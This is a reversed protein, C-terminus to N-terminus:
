NGWSAAPSSLWASLMTVRVPFAYGTLNFAAPSKVFAGYKGLDVYPAVNAPVQSFASRNNRVFIQLPNVALPTKPRLRVAEPILDRLASRVLFKDLTWPVPPLSLLFRMLRLDFYPHAYEVCVRTAGPDCDEFCNQWHPALLTRVAEPRNPHEGAPASKDNWRQRLGLRFEFDPNLWAPYNVRWPDPVLSRRQLMTRVGMPPLGRQSIAYRAGDQLFRGLRRKRLLRRFHSNSPYLGVDGGEGTLVLRARSSALRRFDSDLAPLINEDPQSSQVKLFETQKSILYRDGPLYDIPIGQSAAFMGSYHREEDPIVNDYVLTVGRLNNVGARRAFTAVSTSDLGGSLSIAARDGRLRDKAAVQLLHRFQEVYEAPHKYRLEEDLPPSWYRKTSLKGNCWTLVHAAPLRQIRAFITAAPDQIAGYFLYEAVSLENLGACIGPLLRVCDLTNSFVLWRESEAYFFPKVGLQDRACFLSKRNSDWIAFSFDGLLHEVCCEGWAIYARLILEAEGAGTLTKQGASELASLLDARGDLRADAVIWVNQGLTFPQREHASEPTTCLLTHGLAIADGMWTHQADPGRFALSATLAELFSSEVAEGHVGVVGVIGSM